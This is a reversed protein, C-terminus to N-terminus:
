CRRNKQWDIYELVVPLLVAFGFGTLIIADSM